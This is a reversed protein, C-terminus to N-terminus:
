VLHNSSLAASLTRISASDRLLGVAYAANAAVSADKDNLLTRLRPADVMGREAGVQGIALAAAARLSPWRSALAHDILLTDLQRTDAMSLLQAYRTIDAATPAPQPSQARAALSVTMVLGLAIRSRRFLM